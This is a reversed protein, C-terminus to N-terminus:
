NDGESPAEGLVDWDPNVTYVARRIANTVASGLSGYDDMFKKFGGKVKQYDGKDMFTFLEKGGPAFINGADHLSTYVEYAWRERLNTRRRETVKGGDGYELTIDSEKDARQMNDAETAQRVIVWAMEKKDCDGELKAVEESIESLYIKESIIPVAQIAM